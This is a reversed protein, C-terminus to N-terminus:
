EKIGSMFGMILLRGAEYEKDPISQVAEIFEKTDKIDEDTLHHANAQRKVREVLEIEQSISRVPRAKKASDNKKKRERM